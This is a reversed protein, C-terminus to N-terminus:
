AGSSERVLQQIAADLRAVDVPKCLHMGYGSEKLRESHETPAFGSVVIGGFRPRPSLQPLLDLGNGDPLGMDAVLVDFPESGSVLEVASAMSTAAEVEYGRRRLLLILSRNTDEHDDVLLVRLPSAALLDAPAAAEHLNIM